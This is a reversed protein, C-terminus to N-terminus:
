KDSFKAASFLVSCSLDASHWICTASINVKGLEKKCDCRGSLQQRKKPPSTNTKKDEAQDIEIPSKRKLSATMDNVSKKRQRSLNKYKLYKEHCERYQSKKKKLSAKYKLAMNRAKQVEEQMNNLEKLQLENAKQLREQLTKVEAELWEVRCKEQNLANKLKTKEEDTKFLHQKVQESFKKQVNNMQDIHELLQAAATVDLIEECKAATANLDDLSEELEYMINSM